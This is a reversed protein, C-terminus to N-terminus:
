CPCHSWALQVHAIEYLISCGISDIYVYKKNQWMSLHEVVIPFNIEMQLVFYINTLSFYKLRIKRLATGDKKKWIDKPNKCWRHNIEILIIYWTVICVPTEYSLRFKSAFIEDKNLNAVKGEFYLHYIYRGKLKHTKCIDFCNFLNM